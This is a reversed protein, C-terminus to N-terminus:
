NSMFDCVEKWWGLEPDVSVSNHGAGKFVWLKRTTKLSKYLEMSHQVPIVEDNEALLVAINGEFEALNDINNHLEHRLRLDYLLRLVSPFAEVHIWEFSTMLRQLRPIKEAEMAFTNTGTGLISHLLLVLPSHSQHRSPMM